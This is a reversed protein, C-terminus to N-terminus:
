LANVFTYTLAWTRYLPSNLSKGILTSDAYSLSYIDERTPSYNIFSSVEFFQESSSKSNINGSIEKGTQYNWSNTLGASWSSEGFAYSIGFPISFKEYDKLKYGLFSKGFLHNWETTMKFTVLDIKKLLFNGLGFSYLGTGRVDSMIKSTSDYLSNSTPITVKFYAFGRPKILSFQREPLYEYTTQLDIDGLGKNKENIGSKLMEKSIVSSKIAIQSFESLQYQAQLNISQRQDIVSDNNLYALGISNTQGIDNRASIGLSLEYRNDGTIILSSSSGGGCCSSAFALKHFIFISILILKKM